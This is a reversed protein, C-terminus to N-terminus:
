PLSGPLSLMPVSVKLVPSLSPMRLRSLSANSLHKWGEPRGGGMGWTGWRESEPGRGIGAAEDRVMQM